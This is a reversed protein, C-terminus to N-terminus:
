NTEMNKLFYQLKEKYMKSNLKLSQAHDSGVTVYLQKIGNIKANYLEYVMNTPIFTDSDGHIFLVPMTLKNAKSLPAVDELFFGSRLKCVVSLYEILVPRLLTPVKYDEARAIYLDKLDSWGCDEVLFAIADNNGYAEAYLMSTAAGLSEGHIGIKGNPNQKHVYQYCAALDDKEFYGYSTHAGGTGGHCRQDYIFINYGLDLFIDGYKLSNWQDQGIGHVLIVTNETSIPNKIYTGSIEYGYKSHVKVSTKKLIEYRKEDFAGENAEGSLGIAKNHTVNWNIIINYFYSAAFLFIINFLLFVAVVTSIILKKKLSMIAKLTM